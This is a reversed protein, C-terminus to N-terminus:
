RGTWVKVFPYIIKNKNIDSVYNQYSYNFNHKKSLIDGFLSKITLLNPSEECFMLGLVREFSCRDKRNKIVSTLYSIHYKQELRELFRLSIYSQAGFCLIFKNSHQPIIGFNSIVDDNLKKMLHYNNTLQNVIRYINLVNEKDYPHHWFPMVPVHFHEFPIRKHIFVSDHLIVANPFWKYRLYYVYPLLEGCGKHTLESNIVLVNGYPPTKPEIFEELSNDDIIVIMRHPYYRHIQKICQNWYKNTEESNVHRTIIFGFDNM